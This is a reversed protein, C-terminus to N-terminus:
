YGHPHLNLGQGRETTLSGPNGHATSYTLSLSLDWTLTATAYAPLQLELEVVLGAVEMHWM